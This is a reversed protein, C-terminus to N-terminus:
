INPIHTLPTILFNSGTNRRVKARSVPSSLCVDFHINELSRKCKFAQIKGKESLLSLDSSGQFAFDCKLDSFVLLQLM